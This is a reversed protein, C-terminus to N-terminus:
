RSRETLLSGQLNFTSRDRRESWQMTIRRRRDLVCASRGYPVSVGSHDVFSWNSLYQKYCTPLSATWRSRLGHASPALNNGSGTTQENHVSSVNRKLSVSCGQLNTTRRRGTMTPRAQDIILQLLTVPRPPPAVASERPACPPATGRYRHIRFPDKLTVRMTCFRLYPQGRKTQNLEIRITPM